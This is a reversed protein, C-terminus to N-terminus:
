TAQCTAVGVFVAGSILYPVLFDDVMDVYRMGCAIWARAV